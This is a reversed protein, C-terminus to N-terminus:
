EFLPLDLVNEISLHASGVINKIFQGTRPDTLSAFVTNLVPKPGHITFIHNEIAANKTLKYCTPVYNNGSTVLRKMLLCPATTINKQDTEIYQRSSKTLKVTNQACMNASYILLTDGSSRLYEKHQNWVIKGIHINAGTDRITKTYVIPERTDSIIVSDRIRLTHAGTSDQRRMTICMVDQAVDNSFKGFNKVDVIDVVSLVHKRIKACSVSAKFTNPVIFIAVGGPNLLDICKKIFLFYINSKGEIWDGYIEQYEACNQCKNLENYPPNSVILDYGNTHNALLFDTNHTRVNCINSVQDYLSKEIEYGTVNEDPYMSLVDLLEGSGFSPELCLSPEIECKAIMGRVYKKIKEGTFFQGMQQRHERTASYAATIESFRNVSTYMIPTHQVFMDRIYYSFAHKSGTAASLQACMKAELEKIEPNNKVDVLAQYLEPSILEDGRHVAIARDSTRMFIYYCDLQPFSCNWVPKGNHSSKCEVNYTDANYLVSFDPFKQSGNPQAAFYWINPAPTESITIPTMAKAFESHVIAELLNTSTKPLVYQGATLRKFVAFM